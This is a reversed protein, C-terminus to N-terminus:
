PAKPVLRVVRGSRDGRTSSNDIGTVIVWLLGDPGTHVDRVRVAGLDIREQGIVAGGADLDVRFLAGPNPRGAVRLGGSFLDGDWGPYATGRWVSLGSPAIAPDWVLLPDSMGAMTQVPSIPRREAGYEVSHTVLPWGYNAGAVIVNLEDGGQSGHETAYITGTVPDRALGQPNRHGMSYVHGLADPRGLFPNDSPISGDDNLRVIKGLHSDPNQAQERIFGGELRTPPNGGDGIAVLMTGDPLWLIRSGNHQLRPKAQSTEFIVTVDQLSRDVLRARILRTRIATEDGHSFTLYIFRNASFQPHLAVDMLGGQGGVAIPPLGSVPAEELQGARVFRLQGTLETILMDGEPLFAMGWPAELGTVVDVATVQTSTAVTRPDMVTANSADAGPALLAAGIFAALALAVTWKREFGSTIKM